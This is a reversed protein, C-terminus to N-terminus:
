SKKEEHQQALRDIEIRHIARDVIRILILFRHLLVSLLKLKLRSVAPLAAVTGVGSCKSVLYHEIPKRETSQWVTAGHKKEGKAFGLEDVDRPYGLLLIGQIKYHLPIDYGAFLERWTAGSLLRTHNMPESASIWCSALGMATALILMNEMSAACNQIELSEWLYYEGAGRRDNEEADAFVVILAKAFGVIGAPFQTEIKGKEAGRYPWVFRLKGIHEIEAADDIILFRQNQFNSGSPAQIGALVLNELLDRSVPEDTFRRVSRRRAIVTTVIAATEETRPTTSMTPIANKYQHTTLNLLGLRPPSVV